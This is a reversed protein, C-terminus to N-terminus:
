IAGMLLVLVDCPVIPLGSLLKEIMAINYLNLWYPLQEDLSLDNLPAQVPVNELSLRIKLDVKLVQKM